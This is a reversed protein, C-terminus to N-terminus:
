LLIDLLKSCSKDRSERGFYPCQTQGVRWGSVQLNSVFPFGQYHHLIIRVMCAVKRYMAKPPGLTKSPAPLSCSAIDGLTGKSDQTRWRLRPNRAAGVVILSVCCERYEHQAIALLTYDAHEEAAYRSEAQM